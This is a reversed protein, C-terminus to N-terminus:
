RGDRASAARHTGEQLVPLYPRLPGVSARYQGALTRAVQRLHGLDHVAWSAILEAATIRGLEPHTGADSLALGDALLEELSALNQQRLRAFEEILEGIPAEQGRDRHAFRDFPEFTRDEGEEAVLRLRPLWDTREGHILHGVVDYPSFTDESEDALLWREPLGELLEALVRPTRGLIETAEDVRFEIGM